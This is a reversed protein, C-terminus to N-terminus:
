NTISAHSETQLLTPIYFCSRPRRLAGHFAWLCTLGTTVRERDRTSSVLANRSLFTRILYKFKRFCAKMPKSCHYTAYHNVLHSLNWNKWQFNNMETRWTWRSNRRAPASTMWAKVNERSSSIMSSFTSAACYFLPWIDLWCSKEKVLWILFARSTIVM